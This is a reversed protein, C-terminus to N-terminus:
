PQRVPSVEEYSGGIRIEDLNTQTARAAGANPSGGQYRVQTFDGFDGGSMTISAYGAASGNLQGLTTAELDPDVWLEVIDNSEGDIRSYRLAVFYDRNPVVPEIGTDGVAGGLNEQINLTRGLEVWIFRGKSDRLLFRLGANGQEKNVVASVWFGSKVPSRLDRRVDMASGLRNRFGRMRNGAVVLSNVGDGYALSEVAVLPDPRGAAPDKWSGSWGTGGDLSTPKQQGVPYDFGEYALVQGSLSGSLGILLGILFFPLGFCYKKM